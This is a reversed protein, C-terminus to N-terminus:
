NNEDADEEAPYVDELMMLAAQSIVAHLPYFDAHEVGIIWRHRYEDLAIKEIVTEATRGCDWYDRLASFMLADPEEVVNEIVTLLKNLVETRRQLNRIPSFEIGELSMVARGLRSSLGEHSEHPHLILQNRISVLEECLEHKTM